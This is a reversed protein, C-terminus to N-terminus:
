RLRLRSTRKYENRRSSFDMHEEGCAYISHLSQLLVENLSSFLFYRNNDFDSCGYGFDFWKLSRKPLLYHILGSLDIRLRAFHLLDFYKALEEVFM